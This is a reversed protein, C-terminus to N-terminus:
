QVCIRGKGYCLEVSCLLLSIVHRHGQLCVLINKHKCKVAKSFTCLFWFRTVSGAAANILNMYTWSQGKRQTHKSRTQEKLVFYEKGHTWFSFPNEICLRRTFRAIWNEKNLLTTDHPPNQCKTSQMHKANRCEPSQHAPANTSLHDCSQSHELTGFPQPWEWGHSMADKRPHSTPMLFRNSVICFSARSPRIPFM